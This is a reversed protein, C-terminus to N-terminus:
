NNGVAYPNPVSNDFPYDPYLEEIAARNAEDSFYQYLPYLVYKEMFHKYPYFSANPVRELNEGGYYNVMKKYTEPHIDEIKHFYEVLKILTYPHWEGLEPHPRGTDWIKENKYDLWMPAEIANDFRLIRVQHLSDLTPTFSGNEVLEICLKYREYGNTYDGVLNDRFITVPIYGGITDPKICADGIEYHVGEIATTSDPRVRYSIKRTENSVGGMVQVPINYTYSRIEVPTVGFSYNLTDRTFYIGSQSEDFTMYDTEECSTFSFVVASAVAVIITTAKNYIKM